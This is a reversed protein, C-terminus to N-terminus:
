TLSPITKFSIMCHYISVVSMETDADLVVDAVTTSVEDSDELVDNVKALDIAKVAKKNKSNQVKKRKGALVQTTQKKEINSMPLKKKRALKVSRSKKNVNKKLAAAKVAKANKKQNKRKNNHIVQTLPLSSMDNSNSSSAESTCSSDSSISDGGGRMLSDVVSKSDVPPKPANLERPTKTKVLVDGGSSSNAHLIDPPTKTNVIADDGSSSNRSPPKTAVVADGSGFSEIPCKELERVFYEDYMKAHHYCLNSLHYLGSEGEIGCCLNPALGLFGRYKKQDPKYMDRWNLDNGCITQETRNYLDSVSYKTYSRGLRTRPQQIAMKCFGLYSSTDIDEIM